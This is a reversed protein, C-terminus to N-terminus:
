SREVQLERTSRRTSLTRQSPYPNVKSWAPPRRRPEKPPCAGVWLEPHVDREEQPRHALDARFGPFSLNPDSFKFYKRQKLWEKQAPALHRVLPTLRENRPVVPAEDEDFPEGKDWPTGPDLLDILKCVLVQIIALRKKPASTDDLGAMESLQDLLPTMINQLRHDDSKVWQFELQLPAGKPPPQISVIRLFEDIAMPMRMSLHSSENRTSVLMVNGIALLESTHLQLLHSHEDSEDPRQGIEKKGQVPTHAEFQQKIDNMVSMVENAQENTRMIQWQVRCVELWAITDALSHAMLCVHWSYKKKKKTSGESDTEADDQVRQRRLFQGNVQMAIIAQLDALSSMMPKRYVNLFDEYAGLTILTQASGVSARLMAMRLNVHWIRATALSDSLYTRVFFIFALAIIILACICAAYTPTTLPAAM